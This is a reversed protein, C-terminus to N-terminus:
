HFRQCLVISLANSIKTRAEVLRGLFDVNSSGFQLDHLIVDLLLDNLVVQLVDHSDLGVEADSSSWISGLQPPTVPVVVLFDGDQKGNRPAPMLELDIGVGGPNNSNSNLRERHREPVRVGAIRDLLHSKRTRVETTPPNLKHHEFNFAIVQHQQDFLSSVM